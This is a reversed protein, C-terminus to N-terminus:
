SGTKEPSGEESKDNGADKRKDTYGEPKESTVTYSRVAGSQPQMILVGKMSNDTLTGKWFARDKDENTQMTEWVIDENDKLTVTCNSQPYGEESLVSSTVKRGEFDITDKHIEPTKTNREILYVTWERKNLVTVAEETKKMLEEARRAAEKRKREEERRAQEEAQKKELEAKEEETMEKKPWLAFSSEIVCVSVSLIILLAILRKMM